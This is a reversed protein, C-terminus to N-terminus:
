SFTYNLKEVDEKYLNHVIKKMEKTYVSKYDKKSSKNLVEVDNEFEVKKSIRDMVNNIREFKGIYDLNIDGASDSIFKTQPTFHTWSLVKNRFNKQKLSLVFQDFSDCHCINKSAWEDDLVNAGGNKLFCFASHIKDWPNRVVSFTYLREFLEQNYREYWVAKKHRRDTEGIAHSITTSATRPVQIFVYENKRNLDTYPDLTKHFIRRLINANRFSKKFMYKGYLWKKELISYM